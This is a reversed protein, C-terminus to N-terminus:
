VAFWKDMDHCAHVPVHTLSVRLDYVRASRVRGGQKSWGETAIATRM